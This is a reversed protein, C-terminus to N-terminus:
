NKPTRGRVYDLDLELDVKGKFKKLEAIKHRRILKKIFQIIAQMKTKNVVKQGDLSEDLKFLKRIMKM